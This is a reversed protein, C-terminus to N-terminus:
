GDRLSSEYLWAFLNIAHNATPLAGSETRNYVHYAVRSEAAAKRISLGRRQRERSLLIPLDAIAQAVQWYPPISM